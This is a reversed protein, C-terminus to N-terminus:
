PKRRALRAEALMAVRSQATTTKRYSIGHPLTEPPAMRQRAAIMQTIEADLALLPVEEGDMVARQLPGPFSDLMAQMFAGVVDLMEFVEAQKRLAMADELRRLLRRLADAEERTPASGIAVELRRVLRGIERTSRSRPASPALASGGPLISSHEFFRRRV